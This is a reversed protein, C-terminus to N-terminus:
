GRIDASLQAFDPQMKVVSPSVLPLVCKKPLPHFDYEVLVEKDTLRCVALEVRLADWEENARLVAAVYTPRVLPDDSSSVVFNSYSEVIGSGYNGNLVLRNIGNGWDYITQMAQIYRVDNSRMWGTVVWTVGREKTWCGYQLGGMDVIGQTILIVAQARRIAKPYLALQATKIANHLNANAIQIREDVKSSLARDLGYRASEVREAQEQIQKLRSTAFQLAQAKESINTLQAASQQAQTQLRKDRELTLSVDPLLYTLDLTQVASARWGSNDHIGSQACELVGVIGTLVFLLSIRNM